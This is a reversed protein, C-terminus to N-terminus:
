RNATQAPMISLEPVYRVFSRKIHTIVGAPLKQNLKQAGEAGLVQVPVPGKDIDAFSDRLTLTIYENVDDGFMTEAVLYTAGAQRFVPMFNNMTHDVWEQGRGPAVRVTSVVALKPPGTRKGEHSLDPRSRIVYRRVSTVYRGAKERWAAAGERGLAKELPGGDFQAFNDVPTVIIFEFPDGAADTRQWVDRWKVGGKRLAPNTESTMFRQFEAMMEPKVSVETVSLLQRPAAPQAARQPSAAPTQAQAFAPGPPFAAAAALLALLYLRRM